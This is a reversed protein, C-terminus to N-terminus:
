DPYVNAMEVIRWARRVRALACSISWGPRLIETAAKPVAIPGREEPEGDEWVELWLKGPEIRAITFHDFDLYDSDPLEGVDVEVRSAADYLIKAARDARPLDRSAAAGQEAADRAADADIYGRAALWTSLKTTVTGAARLLDPGAMVKRIMFYGLFGALQDPIKEPGFLECFERHDADEANYSRDFLAREPKSLGEHAYGDLCHRLLQIVSDYQSFTRSKLRLRQEALFEDLVKAISPEAPRAMEVVKASM